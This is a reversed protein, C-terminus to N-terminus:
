AGAKAQKTTSPSETESWFASQLYEITLPSFLDTAPSAALKRMSPSAGEANSLLQQAYPLHGMISDRYETYRAGMKRLPEFLYSSAGASKCMTPAPSTSSVVIRTLLPEHLISRSQLFPLLLKVVEPLFENTSQPQCEADCRSFVRGASDLRDALAGDGSQILVIRQFERPRLVIGLGSSTAMAPGMPHSALEELVERPLDRERSTVNHIAAPVFQSPIDTKRIEGEKATASKLAATKAEGQFTADYGEKFMLSPLSLVSPVSLHILAKATRDAGVFVYSIDFFKPYHNHVFVKQGNWLISNPSHLMESCYEKRTKAWGPIPTHKHFEAVAVGESSHVRPNYSRQAEAFLKWDAHIACLDGPVRSGMSVDAYECSKLKDWISTVGQARCQQPTVKTVLEVRHMRPNWAAFVVDGIAKAPDQNRHHPFVKANYFTPFGYTWKQGIAMDLVPDGTWRTPRHILGSEDFFDANANSGFFEGSGLANVLTYCTDNEPRVGEIYRLVEPVVFSSATKEFFADTARTFLPLVSPGLENSGSFRSEKYIM